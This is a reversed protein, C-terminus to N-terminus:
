LQEHISLVSPVAPEANIHPRFHRPEETVEYKGRDTWVWGTGGEDTGIADEVTGKYRTLRQCVTPTGNQLLSLHVALFGHLGNAM